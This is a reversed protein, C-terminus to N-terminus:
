PLNNPDWTHILFVNLITVQHSRGNLLVTADLISIDLGNDLMDKMSVISPIASSVLLFEFDIIIGLGTFLIQIKILGVGKEKGGIGLITKSHSPYIAQQLGFTQCYATYKNTSIISRRNACTDIRVGEFQQQPSNSLFIYMASILEHPTSTICRGDM